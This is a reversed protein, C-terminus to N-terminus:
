ENGRLLTFGKDKTLCLRVSPATNMCRGMVEKRLKIELLCCLMLAMETCTNTAFLSIKNLFLCLLVLDDYLRSVISIELVFIM